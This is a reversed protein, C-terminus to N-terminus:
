TARRVPESRVKMRLSRAPALEDLCRQAASRVTDNLSALTFEDSGEATVDLAISRRRLRVRGDRVGEVDRTAGSVAAALGKRTLAVSTQPHVGDPHIELRAKRRPWLQVLLIILGALAVIGAAIKVSAANWTNRQAWRLWPHWDLIVPQDGLRDASVEVAVIVAAAIVALGAILALFRNLVRM